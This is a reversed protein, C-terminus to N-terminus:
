EVRKAPMDMGNQHLVLSTARGSEDVVFTIQADVVKYFFERDGKPFVQFKPQGTAQVFLQDGERTVTLVFAPALQYRGLYGDFRKPDVAVEKPAPPPPLADGIRRAPTNAGNQHLIVRTAPGEAGTEFTLQADVVKLFFDRDSSPFIEFKPQGTAQTYLHAEDRTVTLIFHPTLEYRGVYRDYLKPDVAVIKREAPPQLLPSAAV